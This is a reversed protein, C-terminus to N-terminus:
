ANQLYFLFAENIEQLGMKYAIIKNKNNTKNWITELPNYVYVFKEIQRSTEYSNM